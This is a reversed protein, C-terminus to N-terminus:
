TKILTEKLRQNQEKLHENNIELERAHEKLGSITEKWKIDKMDSTVKHSVVAGCVIGIVIGAMFILFPM